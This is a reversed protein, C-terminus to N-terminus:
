SVSHDLPLLVRFSSGQRPATCVRMGGKHMRVIGAVAALGLGRGFFKTTYFPDFIRVTDCPDMGHGTDRVELFVYRGPEPSGVVPICDGKDGAIEETGSAIVVAGREEGVAEVANQILNLVVQRVQDADCRVPPVPTLEFTLDINVPLAAQFTLASETILHALDIPKFEYIGKGSYALLQRVLDAAREGANVIEDAFYRNADGPLMADRLMCANGLVGTLLNNFDHAVGAALAGISELEQKRRMAEETRIRQLTSRVRARLLVPNVPKFLYDEAGLEICRAVTDMDDLASILIVPTHRLGPDTKITAIVDLGSMDPMVLDLLILDFRQDRMRELAAPGSDAAQATFGYRSLLRSLMDRNGDNDDVVLISAATNPHSDFGAPGAALPSAAAAPIQIESALQHTASRIRALDPLMPEPLVRELAEAALLMRDLPKAMQRRLEAPADGDLYETEGSLVSQIAELNRRADEQIATLLEAAESSDPLAAIDELLIESYGSIHNIPTRLTHRLEAASQRSLPLEKWLALIAVKRRVGDM